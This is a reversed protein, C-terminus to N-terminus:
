KGRLLRVEQEVVDNWRWKSRIILSRHACLILCSHLVLDGKPPTWVFTNDPDDAELPVVEETKQKKSDTSEKEAKMSLERLRKLKAEKEDRERKKREDEMAKSETESPADLKPLTVKKKLPNEEVEDYLSYFL